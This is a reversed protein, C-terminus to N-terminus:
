AAHPRARADSTRGSRSASALAAPASRPRRPRALPTRPTRMVPVTQGRHPRKHTHMVPVAPSMVAFGPLDQVEKVTGVGPALWVTDTGSGREIELRGAPLDTTGSVSTHQYIVKMCEKYTGAPVTVTEPGSVTASTPLSLGESRM